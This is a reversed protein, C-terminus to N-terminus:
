EPTRREIVRRAARLARDWAGSCTDLADPTMRRVFAPWYMERRRWLDLAVREVESM